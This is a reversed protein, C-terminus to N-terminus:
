RETLGLTTTGLHARRSQACWRSKWFVVAPCATVSILCFNKAFFAKSLLVHQALYYCSAWEYAEIHEKGATSGLDISSRAIM